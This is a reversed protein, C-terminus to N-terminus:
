FYSKQHYNRQHSIEWKGNQTNKHKRYEYPFYHYGLEKVGWLVRKKLPYVLYIGAIKETYIPNIQQPDWRLPVVM